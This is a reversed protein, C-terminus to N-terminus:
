QRQLDIKLGIPLPAPCSAGIVGNASTWAMASTAASGVVDATGTCVTGNSATGSFMFQGTFSANRVTGNIQGQWNVSTSNWNGSVDSGSQTLVMTLQENPNNSSVITGNWTGAINTTTGGSAESPGVSSGGCASVCLVVCVALAVRM